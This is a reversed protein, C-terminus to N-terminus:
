RDGADADDYAATVERRLTENVLSQAEERTLGDANIVMNEIVLGGRTSPTMRDFFRGFKEVDGPARLVGWGVENEPATLVGSWPAGQPVGIPQSLEGSRVERLWDTVAQAGRNYGGDGGTGGLVRKLGVDTPQGEDVVQFGRGTLWNWLLPQGTKPDHFANFLNAESNFARDMAALMDTVAGAIETILDRTVVLSTRFESEAGLSAAWDAFVSPGGNAAYVLDEVALYTLILLGAPGVLPGLSFGLGTTVSLAASLSQIAAAARATVYLGGLATLAFGLPKTLAEFTHTLADITHGIKQDLWERNATVWDLMGDTVERLVPILSIGLRTRTGSVVYGLRRLDTTLEVAAAATEETVVGSFVRAEERMDHIGKSGRVLLPLLKRGVDDGFLRSAAAARESSDALGAIGDATIELIEIPNAGKFRKFEVGAHSFTRIWEENGSAAELGYDAITQLADSVDNMDSGLAIFVQSMERAAQTGIGLGEGLRSMVTLEQAVSAATGAFAANMAFVASSLGTVLGMASEYRKLDGEFVLQTILREVVQDAM